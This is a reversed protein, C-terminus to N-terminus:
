PSSTALAVAAKDCFRASAARVESSILFILGVKMELSTIPCPSYFFSAPVATSGSGAIRFFQRPNDSEMAMPPAIQEVPAFKEGAFDATSAAPM